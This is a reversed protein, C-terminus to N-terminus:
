ASELEALRDAVGHWHSALVDMGFHESAQGFAAAHFFMDGGCPNGWLEPNRHAWRALESMDDFGLDGAMRHAGDNFRIHTASGHECLKSDRQKLKDPEAVDARKMQHITEYWGGHCAVTKCGFGFFGGEQWAGAYHMNVEAKDLAAAEDFMAAVARVAKSSPHKM